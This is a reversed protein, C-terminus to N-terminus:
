DELEAKALEIDFREMADLPSLAAAKAYLAEAEAMRKDGEIMVYGNACEMLTIASTPNLKLAADFMQLGTRADAGQGRALLRGVKDIVEAHFAGLAVHADAHRPALAIARELATKIKVGLGQVLAEAISIGQSYRGLAYAQLYFANANDPQADQQAEARAAVALFADLKAKENKEVYNAHIAQAKNAVTIGDGGAKLGAALAAKFDGAHFLRWAEVVAASKPWPEADGRHLQPWLSKLTAADHDFGAAAKPAVSKASPAKSKAPAKTAVKTPAKDVVKAPAKAAMKSPAKATVKPAAKTAATTKGASKGPAKAPAKSAVKASAKSAAKPTAKAAAKPAAKSAAKVAAKPASAKAAPGPAPTKKAPTKKATTAM